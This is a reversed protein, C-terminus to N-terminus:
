EADYYFEDAPNGGGFQAPDIAAIMEVQERAEAASVYRIHCGPIAKAAIAESKIIGLEVADAAAAEINEQCRDASARILALWEKTKEPKTEITEKKVFLGAQAFGDNGTLDKYLDSLSIVTVADNKIKAATAAPEATMVIAEADQILLEQTVVASGQYSIEAPTIGMQELIYLAVSANITNEGFLTVTKGNMTEPTFDPIQSAFVLNGWTLVAALRYESKGAKFLKAGANVPAIVFDAKGDTFATVITDASIRQLNDKLASVALAPAGDPSIIQFEPEEAAAFGGLSVIAIMLVTLLTIMKKM